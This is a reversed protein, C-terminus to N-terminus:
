TAPQGVQVYRIKLNTATDGYQYTISSTPRCFHESIVFLRFIKWIREKHDQPLENGSVSVYKLYLVATAIYIERRVVACVCLFKKKQIETITFHKLSTNYMTTLQTDTWARGIAKSSICSAQNSSRPFTSLVNSWYRVDQYVSLWETSWYICRWPVRGSGTLDSGVLV